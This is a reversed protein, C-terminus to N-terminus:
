QQEFIAISIIYDIAKNAIRSKVCQAAHSSKGNIQFCLYEKGSPNLETTKHLKISAITLTANLPTFNTTTSTAKVRKKKFPTVSLHIADTNSINKKSQNTDIHKNELRSLIYTQTSNDASSTHSDLYSLVPEQLTPTSINNKYFSGIEKGM